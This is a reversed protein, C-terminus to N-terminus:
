ALRLASWKRRNVTGRLVPTRDVETQQGVEEVSDAL